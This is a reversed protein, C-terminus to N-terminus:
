GPRFGFGLTSGPERDGVDNQLVSYEAQRASRILIEILTLRRPRGDVQPGPGGGEHPVMM